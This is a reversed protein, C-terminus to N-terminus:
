QPNMPASNLIDLSAQLREPISRSELIKQQVDGDMRIISFLEFSFEQVPKNQWEDSRLRECISPDGGSLAMLRNLIKEQLLQAQETEAQTMTDDDYASCRVISFPLTQVEEEIKYRGEIKVNILMRGDSITKVLECPGAGFIPYPKYTDQNSNLKDKNDGQPTKSHLIKQTHCIGIPMDEQLCFKVMDRYRPEFVHLPFVMGPFVVCDPIPFLAIDTTHKTNM